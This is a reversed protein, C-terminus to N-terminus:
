SLEHRPPVKAVATRRLLRRWLPATLSDTVLEARTVKWRGDVREWALRLTYSWSGAYRVDITTAGDSGDVVDGIAYRSPAGRPVGASGLQLVAQATMYSAFSAEDRGVRASAQGEVAARLEGDM